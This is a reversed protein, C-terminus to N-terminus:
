SAPRQPHVLRRRLKWLLRCSLAVSSFSAHTAACGPTHAVLDCFWASQSCSPDAPHSRVPQPGPWALRMCRQGDAARRARGQQGAAGAPLQAAGAVGGRSGRTRVTDPAAEGTKCLVPKPSPKRVRGLDSQAQNLHLVFFGSLVHWPRVGGVCSKASKGFINPRTLSPKVRRARTRYLNM